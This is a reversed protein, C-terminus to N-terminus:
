SKEPKKQFIFAVELLDPLSCIDQQKNFCEKLNLSYEWIQISKHPDMLVGLSSLDMEILLHFQKLKLSEIEDLRRHELLQVELFVM